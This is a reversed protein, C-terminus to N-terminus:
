ARSSVMGSVHLWADILKGGELDSFMVIKTSDSGFSAEQM